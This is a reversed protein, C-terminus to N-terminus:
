TYSERFETAHRSEQSSASPKSGIPDVDFTPGVFVQRLGLNPLKYLKRAQVYAEQQNNAKSKNLNDVRVKRFKKGSISNAVGSPFVTV